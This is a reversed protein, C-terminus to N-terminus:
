KNNSLPSNVDFFLKPKFLEKDMYLDFQILLLKCFNRTREYNLNRFHGAIKRTVDNAGSKIEMCLLKIDSLVRM